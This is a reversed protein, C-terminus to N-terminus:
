SSEPSELAPVQVRLWWGELRELEEGLWNELLLVTLIDLILCFKWSSQSAKILLCLVMSHPDGRSAMSAARSSSFVTLWLRSSM